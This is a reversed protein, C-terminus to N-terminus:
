KGVSTPAVLLETLMVVEAAVLSRLTPELEPFWQPSHLDLHKTGSAIVSPNVAGIHLLVARVGARGYASFDESTMKAPMEVASDAGLDRRLVAVLRATLEPDNYVMEAGPVIKISPLSPADAATAEADLQRKISALIRSRV